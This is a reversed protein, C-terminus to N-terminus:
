VFRKLVDVVYDIEEKTTEKGFSFRVSHKGRKPDRFVESVVKSAKMARATCATGPSIGINNQDLYILVDQAEKTPFYINFIKPTSVSPDTNFEVNLNKMKEMFYNRIEKLHNVIKEREEEIIEVAKAFGVILPVAHTGARLGYEQEGGSFLNILPTGEKVYLIAVGKPGYMKHSSLTLLDVNFDKVDIKETLGSQAADVHFFIKNKRGENIKKIVEGFTKIDQITGIESNVHHISVLCTEEKILNKLDDVNVLGKRDPILFDIEAIGLEFLDKMVNGVSSHEISTTVLHPKIKKKFFYYFAIGKIALNNSETASGTFIIERLSEANIFKKITDRAFDVAMLAEQGIKHLSVPNGFKDKFYPMMALLVREDVPTTAAYDLYIYKNM